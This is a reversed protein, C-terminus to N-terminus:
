SWSPFQVCQLSRFPFFLLLLFWAFSASSLNHNFSSSSTMKETKRTCALVCLLVQRSRSISLDCASKLLADEPHCLAACGCVGWRGSQGRVAHIHVHRHPSPHSLVSRVLHCQCWEETFAVARGASTGAGLVATYGCMEPYRQAKEWM